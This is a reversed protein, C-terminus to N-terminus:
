SEYQIFSFFVSRVIRTVILDGELNAALLRELYDGVMETGGLDKYLLKSRNNIAWARWQLFNSNSYRGRLALCAQLYEEEQLRESIFWELAPGTLSLLLVSSHSKSPISNIDLYAELQLSFSNYSPESLLLGSFTPPEM